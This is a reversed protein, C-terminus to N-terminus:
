GPERTRSNEPTSNTTGCVNLHRALNDGRRFVAPLLALALFLFKRVLFFYM